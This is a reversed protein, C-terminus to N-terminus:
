FPMSTMAGSPLVEVRGMAMLIIRSFIATLMKAVDYGENQINRFAFAGGPCIMVAGKPTVNTGVTFVEMNPIFDPGDSNNANQTNAPIRGSFWLNVKGSM